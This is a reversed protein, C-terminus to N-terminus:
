LIWSVGWLNEADRSFSLNKKWSTLFHNNILNWDNNGIWNKIQYIVYIYKITEWRFIKKNLETPDKFQSLYWLIREIRVKYVVKRKYDM